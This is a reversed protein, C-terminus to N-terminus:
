LCPGMSPETSARSRSSAMITKPFSHTLDPVVTGSKLLNAFIGDGKGNLGHCVACHEEYDYKGTEVVPGAPSRRQAQASTLAMVPM